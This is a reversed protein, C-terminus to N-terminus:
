TSTQDCDLGLILNEGTIQVTPGTKDHHGDGARTGKQALCIAVVAAVVYADTLCLLLTSRSMVLPLAWSM